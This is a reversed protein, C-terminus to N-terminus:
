AHNKGVSPTWERNEIVAGRGCLPYTEFSIMRTTYLLDFIIKANRLAVIKDQVISFLYGCAHQDISRRDYHVDILLRDMGLEYIMPCIRCATRIQVCRCRCACRM